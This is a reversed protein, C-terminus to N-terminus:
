RSSSIITPLRYRARGASSKQLHLDPLQPQKDIEGQPHEIESDKLAGATLQAEEQDVNYILHSTDADICAHRHDAVARTCPHLITVCSSSPHTM